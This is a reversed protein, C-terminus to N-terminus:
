QFQQEHLREEQAEEMEFKLTSLQSIWAEMDTEEAQIEKNRLELTEPVHHEETEPVTNFPPLRLRQDNCFAAVEKLKKDREEASVDTHYVGNDPMPSDMGSSSSSTTTTSSKEPVEPEESELVPPLCCRLSPHAWGKFPKWHRKM